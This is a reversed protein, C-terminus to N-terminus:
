WARQGKRRKIKMTEDVEIMAQTLVRAEGFLGRFSFSSRWWSRCEEGRRMESYVYSVLFILAFFSSSRRSSRLVGQCSSFSLCCVLLLLSPTAFMSANFRYCKPFSLTQPGVTDELATVFLHRLRVGIDSMLCQLTSLTTSQLVSRKLNM